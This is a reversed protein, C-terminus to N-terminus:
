KRKLVRKVHRLSLLMSTLKRRYRIWGLDIYIELLLDRHLATM